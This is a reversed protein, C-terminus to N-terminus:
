QGCPAHPLCAPLLSTSPLPLPQLGTCPQLATRGLREWFDALLQKHQTAASGPLAPRRQVGAARELQGTCLTPRWAAHESQSVTFTVPSASACAQGSVEPLHFRQVWAWWPIEDTDFNVPDDNISAVPADELLKRRGMEADIVQLASQCGRLCIFDSSVSPAGAAHLDSCLKHLQTAIACDLAALCPALHVVM